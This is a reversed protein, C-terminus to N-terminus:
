SIAKVPCTEICLGCDTCGDKLYLKEDKIYFIEEPCVMACGLCFGCLAENIEVPM